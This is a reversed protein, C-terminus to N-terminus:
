KVIGYMFTMMADYYLSIFPNVYENYEMIEGNSTLALKNKIYESFEHYESGNSPISLTVVTLARLYDDTYPEVVVTIFSYFNSMNYYLFEDTKVKKEELVM